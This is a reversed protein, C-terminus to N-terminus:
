QIMSAVNAAYNSLLAAKDDKFCEVRTEISSLAAQKRALLARPVQAIDEFLKKKFHIAADKETNRASPFSMSIENGLLVNASINSSRHCVSELLSAQRYGEPSLSAKDTTPARSAFLLSNVMGGACSASAAAAVKSSRSDDQPTSEKSKAFSVQMFFEPLVFKPQLLIYEERFDRIHM